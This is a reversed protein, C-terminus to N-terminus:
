ISQKYYGKITDCIYDIDKDSIFVSSPLWLGKSSIKNAVSFKDKQYYNNYPSQTHIAPYFPRTGIGKEKLYKMLGERDDVLVDIFWPPTDNLDTKVLKIKDIKDLNEQYRRYMQKKKEVRRQLKKMQEIGIVAQIDTFKMNYGLTIHKDIGAQERGFDRIKSIRDFLNADDTILAGGQGTTIIKAASFSFCGIHGFTGLHKGNWRAGLSQAADEILWLNYRNCIDLIRNMDPCRGNLSVVIIAKTKDSISEEIKNIDICLNSEDIDVLVPKAGAWLVANATAIMTFDPVIVEDGNKINCAMLAAFLAITGNSVVSAYRAGTYDALMKEFLRTYKYETIWGGSELYEYVAKKEEEEILPEMQNIFYTDM